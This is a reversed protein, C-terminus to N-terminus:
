GRPMGLGRSAIINRQIESTGAAITGSISYRWAKEIIGRLPVWKDEDTLVGYHGLIKLGAAACKQLNESGFVKSMSAEKTPVQGQSQLWTVKYAMLRAVETEVYREVMLDRAWGEDARPIDTGHDGHVDDMYQNIDDLIRKASAAYDIGSREFDLLTVAVYWGRGKEGVLNEKPVEVNDFFVQNFEHEGAMSIIPRVEVGRSKMDLLLFSIGRHKPADPDTRAMLMMWDARHALSTWIKSGNVLFYDGKDEARTRLSALDSGAEPESYGQCWQVEGRAVPPLFREKQERTGYIMLTPGLMRAGFVDRGPARHYSMEENLILSLMPSAGMGGYEKPWHMTLWGRQALKRRMSLTLEWDGSETARGVGRLDPPLERALFELLEERFAEEAPSFRFDM